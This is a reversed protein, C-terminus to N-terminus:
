FGANAWMGRPFFDKQMFIIFRMGWFSYLIGLMSGPFRLLEGKLVFPSRKLHSDILSCAGYCWNGYSSKTYWGSSSFGLFARPPFSSNTSM